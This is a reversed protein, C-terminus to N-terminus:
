RSKLHILLASRPVRPFYIAGTRVIASTDSVSEIDLAPSRLDLWFPEDATMRSSFYGSPDIAIPFTDFTSDSAFVIRAPRASTSDSVVLRGTIRHGDNRAPLAVELPDVGAPTFVHVKPVILDSPLSAADAYLLYHTAPALDGLVFNGRRDTSAEARGLSFEARTELTSLIVRVNSRVSDPLGVKGVVTAAAPMRITAISDVRVRALTPGHGPCEARVLYTAVSDGLRMSFRGKEDTVALLSTGPLQGYRAMNPLKLGFPTLRAGSLGHGAPDLVRGSLIHGQGGQAKLPTLRVDVTTDAPVGAIRTTEFGPAVALLSYRLEPNLDCLLAQGNRGTRVRRRCEPYCTPCVLSPGSRPMADWVVISSGAVRRHSSDRVTIRIAPVRKEAAASPMATSADATLGWLMLAFVSVMGRPPRM